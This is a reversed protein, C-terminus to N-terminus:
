GACNKDADCADLCGQFANTYVPTSSTGIGDPLEWWFSYSGSALGDATVNLSGRRRTRATAGTSATSTGAALMAKFALVKGVRTPDPAPV